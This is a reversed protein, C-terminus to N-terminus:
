EAKGNQLEKRKAAVKTRDRHTKLNHTSMFERVVDRFKIWAEELMEQEPLGHIHLVRYQQWMSDNIHPLTWVKQLETFEGSYVDQLFIM